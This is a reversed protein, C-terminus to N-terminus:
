LRRSPEDRIDETGRSGLVEGVVVAAGNFTNAVICSFLKLPFPSFGIEIPM